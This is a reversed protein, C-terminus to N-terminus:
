VLSRATKGVRGVIEAGVPRPVPEWSPRDSRLDRGDTTEGACKVVVGAGIRVVYIALPLGATYLRCELM